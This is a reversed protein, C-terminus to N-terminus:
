AAMYETALQEIRRDFDRSNGRRFCDILSYEQTKKDYHFIFRRGNGNGGAVRTYFIPVDFKTTAKTPKIPKSGSRVDKILDDIYKQNIGMASLKSKPKNAATNLESQFAPSISVNLENIAKEGDEALPSIPKAVGNRKNSKRENKQSQQFKETERAKAQELYFDIVHLTITSLFDDYDTHNPELVVTQWAPENNDRNVNIVCKLIAEFEGNQFTFSIPVSTSEGSLDIIMEKINVPISYGWHEALHSIMDKEAKVVMAKKQETKLLERSQAITQTVNQQVLDIDAPTETKGLISEMQYLNYIRTPDYILTQYIALIGKYFEPNRNMGDLIRHLGKLLSVRDMGENERSTLTKLIAAKFKPETMLDFMEGWFMAAYKLRPDIAHDGSDLFNLLQESNLSDIEITLPNELADFSQHILNDIMRWIQKTHVNLAMEGIREEARLKDGFSTSLFTTMVTEFHNITNIPTFCKVAHDVYLSPDRAFVSSDAFMEALLIYEDENLHKRERQLFNEAIKNLCDRSPLIDKGGRRLISERLYEPLVVEETILGNWNVASADIWMASGYRLAPYIYNELLKTGDNIPIEGSLGLYFDSKKRLVEIEKYSTLESLNGLQIWGTRKGNSGVKQVQIDSRNFLTGSAYTISTTTDLARLGLIATELSGVDLIGAKLLEVFDRNHQSLDKIATRVRSLFAKGEKRPIAIYGNDPNDERRRFEQALAEVHALGTREHENIERLVGEEPDQDKTTEGIEPIM